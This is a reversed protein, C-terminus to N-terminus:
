TKQGCRERPKLVTPVSLEKPKGRRSGLRIIGGAQRWASTITTVRFDLHRGHAAPALSRHVTCGTAVALFAPLRDSPMARPPTVTVAIQGVRAPRGERYAMDCPSGFGARDIGHRDLFRKRCPVRVCDSALSSSNPQHRLPTTWRRREAPRNRRAGPARSYRDCFKVEGGIPYVAMADM